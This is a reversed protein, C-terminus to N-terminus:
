QIDSQANNRHEHSRCDNNRCQDNVTNPACCDFGATLGDHGCQLNKDEHAFKVIAFGPSPFVILRFNCIRALIACLCM